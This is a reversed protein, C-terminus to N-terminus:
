FFFFKKPWCIQIFKASACFFENKISFSFWIVMYPQQGFGPYIIERKQMHGEEFQYDDDDYYDVLDSLQNM